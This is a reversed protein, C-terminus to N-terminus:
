RGSPDRARSCVCHSDPVHTMMVTGLTALALQGHTAWCAICELALQAIGGESEAASMAVRLSGVAISLM